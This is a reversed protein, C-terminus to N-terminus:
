MKTVFLEQVSHSVRSHFTSTNFVYEVMRISMACVNASIPVRPYFDKLKKIKIPRSCWRVPKTYYDLSCSMRQTIYINRVICSKTLHEM